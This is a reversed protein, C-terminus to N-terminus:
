SVLNLELESFFCNLQKLCNFVEIFVLFVRSGGGLITTIWSFSTSVHSLTPLILSDLGIRESSVSSKILNLVTEQFGKPGNKSISVGGSKPIPFPLSFRPITHFWKTSTTATDQNYDNRKKPDSTFRPATTPRPSHAARTAKVAM